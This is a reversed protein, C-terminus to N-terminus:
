VHSSGEKQKKAMWDQYSKGEAEDTGTLSVTAIDTMRYRIPNGSGKLFVDVFHDQALKPNEFERNYLYGEASSGDKFSITIHGRYQFAAEIQNKLNEPVITKNM